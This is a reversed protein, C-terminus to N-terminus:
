YIDFTPSDVPTTRQQISGDAAAHDQDQDGGKQLGSRGCGAAAAADGSSVPLQVASLADSGSAGVLPSAGPSCSRCVLLSTLSAPVQLRVWNDVLDTCGTVHPSVFLM